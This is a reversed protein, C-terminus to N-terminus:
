DGFATTYASDFLNRTAAREDPGLDNGSFRNQVYVRLDGHQGVIEYVRAYPVGDASLTRGSEVTDDAVTGVDTVVRTGVTGGLAFDSCERLGAVYDDFTDPVQALMVTVTGGAQGGPGVRIQAGSVDVQSPTCEAPRNQSRLPTFTIDAVANPVQAAPVAVGPGYPFATAGVTRPALDPVRAPAGDVSCAAVSLAVATVAIAGKVGTVVRM